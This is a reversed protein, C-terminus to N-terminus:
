RYEIVGISEAILTAVATMLRMREQIRCLNGWGQFNLGSEIRELLPAADYLMFLRDWPVLVHEFFLMADQEDYLRGLPHGYSGTWQSVPERCLIKLGPTNTPISFSLVFKPDSRRAFTNSLSVYTENTLPATTALQKAGHVVVGEPTEEVVHLAIEEEQTQRGENQPQQSRDVQPDGLAHTLFLDNEMCYRHYNVANKGFDCNPNKISSLADKMNYLTIIFPALIDPSRGLQGWSQRNWIESNRRKRRLDENSRPLQWSISCRNGTAPSVFTMLDQYQSSHQLDYIRALENVMGAFAAHTTVDAVKEGDLWVERGDNLSAIYREGTMAGRATSIDLVM